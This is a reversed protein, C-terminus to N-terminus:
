TCEYNHDIVNLGPVELSAGITNWDLGCSNMFLGFSPIPIAGKNGIQKLKFNLINIM